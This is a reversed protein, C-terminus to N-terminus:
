AGSPEAAADEIAAPEESHQDSVTCLELSFTAGADRGASAATLEGDHADVIGRSIALGLGLGGFTQHMVDSGQDFANFIRQLQSEEIGIGTDAVTMRISGPRANETRIAISEGRPTFKLANSVLNWIVQQLRAADARVLDSHAALEIRLAVGKAAAQPGFNSVVDDILGHLGVSEFHM